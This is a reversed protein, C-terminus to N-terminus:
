ASAGGRPNAAYWDAAGAMAAVHEPSGPGRRYGRWVAVALDPPLRHWCDACAYLHRAVRRGCGGPCAHTTM